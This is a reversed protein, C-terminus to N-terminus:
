DADFLTMQRAPAVPPPQASLGLHTLIKGIATPEAITAMIRLKSQCHPCIEISLRRCFYLFDTLEVLM